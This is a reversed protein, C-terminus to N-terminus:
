SICPQTKLPVTVLTVGRYGAARKCSIRICHTGPKKFGTRNAARVESCRVGQCSLPYLSVGQYPAVICRGIYCLQWGVQMCSTGCSYLREQVPLTKGEAGGGCM